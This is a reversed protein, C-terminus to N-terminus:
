YINDDETSSLIDKVRGTRLEAEHEQCRKYFTSVPIDVFKAINAKSIGKEQYKKVQKWDIKKLPRGLTKGESKARELGIKIREKTNELEKQAVWSLVPLIIGNRIGRDEIQFWSELPSLSFIIINHQKEIEEILKLTELFSRGLRTVEFVYLRNVEGPHEEIFKFLQKMGERKHPPVTVSVGEDIFIHEPKVDRAAIVQLQNKIISTEKSTRAYGINIKNNNGCDM